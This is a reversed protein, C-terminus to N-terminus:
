TPCAGCRACGDTPCPPSTRGALAKQYDRWLFSKAVGTDIFDWPLIEDGDRPRTV